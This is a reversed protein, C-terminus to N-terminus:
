ITLAPWDLHHACDLGALAASPRKGAVFAGGREATNDEFICDIITPRADGTIWLAGRGDADGGCRRITLGILRVSPPESNNFTLFRAADDCDIITAAAGDLGRITLLKSGFNLGVTQGPGTMVAASYVGAHLLLEAGNLM